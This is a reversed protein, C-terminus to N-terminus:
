TFLVWLTTQMVQLPCHLRSRLISFTGDNSVLFCSKLKLQSHNRRLTSCKLLLAASPNNTWNKTKIGCASSAANKFEWQAFRGESWTIAIRCGKYVDAICQRSRCQFNQRKWSISLVGCWRAKGRRYEDGLHTRISTKRDKLMPLHYFQPGSWFVFPIRSFYTSM